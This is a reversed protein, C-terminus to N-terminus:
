KEKGMQLKEEVSIVIDRFGGQEKPNPDHITLKPRKQFFRILALQDEAKRLDKETFAQGPFLSIQELIVEFPVVENGVVFIRGVKVNAAPPDDAFALASLILLSGILFGAAVAFKQRLMSVEM